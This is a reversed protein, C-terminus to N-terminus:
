VGGGRCFGGGGGGGRERLVPQWSAFRLRLGKRVDIYGPSAGLPIPNKPTAILDM